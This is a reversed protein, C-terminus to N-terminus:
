EFDKLEHDNCMFQTGEVGDATIPSESVIDLEFVAVSDVTLTLLDGDREVFVPSFEVEGNVIAKKVGGIDFIQISRM